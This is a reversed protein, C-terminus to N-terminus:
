RWEEMRNLIQARARAIRGRVTAEGADVVQSIERYGMGDIERLVWCTRQDEPITQLITALAEMQANALAAREPEPASRPSAGGLAGGPGAAELDEGEATDTARRANRRVVDTAARSTIRSIWSRFALPDELLGLRRWALVLAEQVVDEADGRDHLVMYAIRFLRSQHRDVLTEFAAVDGDQARLVLAREDDPILAPM